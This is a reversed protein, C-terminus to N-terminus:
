LVYVFLQVNDIAYNFREGRDEELFAFFWDFHWYNRMGNIIKNQWDLLNSNLPQVSGTGPQSSFLALCCSIELARFRSLTYMAVNLM